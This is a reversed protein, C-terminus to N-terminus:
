QRNLIFSGVSSLLRLRASIWAAQSRIRENEADALDSSVRLVELVDAANKEYRRQSSHFADKATALLQESAELAGLASTVDSHANVVMTAVQNATELVQAESTQAKALASAIKYGRSFGEFLPISLMLGTNTVTQNITSLGQNPYGNKAYTLTFDLKPKGESEAVVVMAQDSAWKAKAQKIAPHTAEAEALWKELNAVDFPKADDALPKLDFALAQHVGMVQKLQGMVKLYEGHARLEYLRAKALATAAQQSDTSAAAGRIERRRTAALTDQAFDAMRRRTEYMAKSTVVEYYSQIVQFAMNHMTLGHGAIAAELLRIASENMAARAGFDFLKWELSLFTQNGTTKVTSESFAFNSSNQLRSLKTNVSPLYAAKAEGHEAAQQKIQAWSIRIKPNNCFAIDIVETLALTQAVLPEAPCPQADPKLGLAASVLPDPRPADPKLASSSLFNPYAGLKDQPEKFPGAAGASHTALACCLWLAFNLKDNM